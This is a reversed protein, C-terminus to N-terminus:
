KSFNYPPFVSLLKTTESILISFLTKLNVPKVQQPARAVWFQQDKRRGPDGVIAAQKLAPEQATRSSVQGQGSFGTQRSVCAFPEWCCGALGLPWLPLPGFPISSQCKLHGISASSLSTEARM